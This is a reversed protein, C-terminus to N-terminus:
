RRYFCRCDLWQFQHPSDHKIRRGEGFNRAPFCCLCVNGTCWYQVIGLISIPILDQKQFGSRSIIAVVSALCLFGIVYRLMALTATTTQDIVYRSAVIAAGVLIGTAAAAVTPQWHSVKM